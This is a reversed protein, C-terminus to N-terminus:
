KYRKNLVEAFEQTEVLIEQYCPFHVPLGDIKPHYDEIGEETLEPIPNCCSVCRVLDSKERTPFDVIQAIM